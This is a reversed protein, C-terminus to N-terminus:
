GTIRRWAAAFADARAAVEAATAGPKYLASGLGFGGAGAGVYAAMSEPVIGGVPLVAVQKPLVAKMAKLVAPPNAEAPFLKLADAGASLAAFAESPTAFGPMAILGLAKARQIVRVDTHPMVVLTGGADAVKDVDTPTLVTGAGVVARGALREALSRISQLPDPSNLPVEILRFGKGVLAEGIAVAEDPKVGRLIAVLPLTAMASAFTIPSPM